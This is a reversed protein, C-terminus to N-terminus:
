AFLGFSAMAIDKFPFNECMGRCYRENHHYVQFPLSGVDTTSYLDPGWQIKLILIYPNLYRFRFLTILNEM